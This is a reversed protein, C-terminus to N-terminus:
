RNGDERGGRKLAIWDPYHVFRSRNAVPAFIREPMAGYVLVVKPELHDIM